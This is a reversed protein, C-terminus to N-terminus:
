CLSGRKHRSPRASLLSLLAAPLWLPLAGGGGGGNSTSGGNTPPPTPAATITLTIPTSVITAGTSQDTIAVTYTGADASQASTVSYTSVTAGSIPANGRRWQFGSGTFGSPQATLTFSGGATVNTASTSISASRPTPTASAAGATNGAGALASILGATPTLEYSYSPTFVTDNGPDATGTTAIFLNGLSRILGGNTKALPNAAHAFVNYEALLQAGALAAVGATNGAVDYGNSYLHVHGSAVAPLAQDAAETWLNHHLTVRLTSTENAGIRVAHRHVAAPNTYYFENWSATLNTAGDTISLLYGACDSLTCHNIFVNSAGTVAIGDGAPNSITLGRVVVNSVGPGISLKGLIAADADLGQITKNSAVNVSGAPTLTGLDLLGSITIVATGTAEAHQKFAAPTDVVVATASGGGTTAAGFGDPLVPASSASIVLTGSASGAYTPDAVTAAIAYSGPATPATTSGDYTLTVTLGTPATTCTVPKPTGDYTATLNGLTVTAPQKAINFTLITTTTGAPNTASILCASPGAVTPTGTITGTAPDLVLGTPLSSASYSTPGNIADIQYAVATGITFTATPANRIVPASRGHFTVVSQAPVTYDFSSNAVAVTPQAELSQALSTVVPSLSAPALHHLAFTQPVAAATDNVVVIACRGSAPDTFATIALPGANNTVDVRYDGPRVFRSFQGMVYGRRQPASDNDLLGNATGICKWWIYASMNGVSLCDSIQRATTLAYGLPQGPIGYTPGQDNVLFETMWLPKGLSRALPYDRITAGYIEAGYLHGGIYDVNAAAVPDNLTPDSLAQNFNLSEPMMVPVSIAGAHDRCFTRLQEATWTCGEYDPDWDPENQVSIVALPAGNAAMHKAFDDLYTAYAAYQAPLLSGGVINNSTKMAAPPTWPSALIRAGRARARQGDTVAATYNGDPPIRIRILTLGFQTGSTGYLQDMQADNLPDQGDYLFAVGAGFGDIQQKLSAAEVVCTAAASRIPSGALLVTACLAAIRAAPASVFRLFKM